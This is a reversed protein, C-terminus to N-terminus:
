DFKALNWASDYYAIEGDGNEPMYQLYELSDRSGGLRNEVMKQIMLRYYFDKLSMDKKGILDVLLTDTFFNGMSTDGANELNTIIERVAEVDLEAGEQIMDLLRKYQPRQRLLEEVTDGEIQTTEGSTSPLTSTSSTSGTARALADLSEDQNGFWDPNSNQTNGWQNQETSSFLLGQSGPLVHLNANAPKFAKYSTGDTHTLTEMEGEIYVKTKECNSCQSNYRCGHKAVDYSVGEPLVVLASAAMDCENPCMYYYRAKRKGNEIVIETFPNSQQAQSAFTNDGQCSGTVTTPKGCNVPCSGAAPTAGTPDDVPDSSLTNLIRSAESVSSFQRAYVAPRRNSGDSSSSEIVNGDKDILGIVNSENGPNYIKIYAKKEQGSINDLLNIFNNDSKLNNIIATSTTDFEVYGNTDKKISNNEDTQSNLKLIEFDNEDKTHASYAKKEDKYRFYYIKNSVGATNGEVINKKNSIFYVAIIIALIIFIYKFM